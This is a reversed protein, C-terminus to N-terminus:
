PRSILESSLLRTAVYEDCITNENKKTDSVIKPIIGGSTNIAHADFDAVGHNNKNTKAVKDYMPPIIEYKIPFRRNKIETM